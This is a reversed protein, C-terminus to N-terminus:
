RFIAVDIPSTDFQSPTNTEVDIRVSSTTRDVGAPPNLNISETASSASVICVYNADVLATTFNVTYSGPGNDVVSSVNFAAKIGGNAVTFPSTGFTGDFNIWAKASGNIVNTVDTSESDAVNAITTVKLKSM